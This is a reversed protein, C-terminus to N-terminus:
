AAGPNDSTLRECMKWLAEREAASERTWPVRHTPRRRRDHSFGGSSRAPEAAAALWAITDAGQEPTRLLPQTLRHFTPLSAQIGPTDAWGPHMAHVVVGTDELRAAWLETLVLEARKTRAYAAAGDFEGRESQLEDVRLRKTYLGGSTVNIVRSPASQRLMEHLLKTMLFPGAVNTAFTLELGDPTTTRQAPLVGANNVLVDLRPESACFEACCRRVDALRSLDCLVVGVDDNGTREIVEARAADAREANRALMRVGAGLQALATAAALGLGASAGTVLAVRGDMPELADDDWGRRRLGYGLKTYGPVVTVDLIKDLPHM